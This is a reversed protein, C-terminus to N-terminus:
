AFLQIQVRGDPNELEVRETAIEVADPDIDCAIFNRGTRVCAVVTTGSGCFPDLVTDGENTFATIYKIAPEIGQQWPHLSKDHNGAWMRDVIWDHKKNPGTKRLVLVPRWKTFTRSGFMKHGYDMSLSIMWRYELYQTTINLVQPILAHGTYVLCFSGPKLVRNALKALEEYLYLYKKHYPPDTFIMDISDAPLHIDRIDCQYIKNIEV